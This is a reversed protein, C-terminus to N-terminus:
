NHTNLYEEFFDLAKQIAQEPQAYYRENMIELSIDGTYGAQDLEELYRTMPLAGEGPVLHGGPMGDIFHVHGFRELGFARLFDAPSQGFRASEDVDIMGKLSDYRDVEDLMRRAQEARTVVDVPRVLPEFVLCVGRRAAYDALEGLSEVCWNWCDQASDDYNHHGSTVLVKPASMQQAVDVARRFFDVSRRRTDRSRAGINIPYMCQEPTVCCVEIGRAAIKQAIQASEYYNCDAFYLHPEAAWLEIKQVGLRQMSDLFFDLSHYPYTYSGVSIQERKM